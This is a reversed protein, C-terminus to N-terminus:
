AQPAALPLRRRRHWPTTPRPGCATRTYPRTAAAKRARRRLRDRARAGEQARRQERAACGEPGGQRHPLRSGRRRPATAEADGAEVAGRAPPLAHQGRGPPAPERGARARQTSASSRHHSIPWQALPWSLQARRRLGRDPPWRIGEFAGLGRRRPARERACRPGRRIVWRVRSGAGTSMTAVSSGPRPLRWPQRRTPRPACPGGPGSSRTRRPRSWGARPDRAQDALDEGGAVEADAAGIDANVIAKWTGFRTRLRNASAAIWAAKTGTKVSFSWRPFLRSAKRRADVSIKRTVSTRVPIVASNMRM